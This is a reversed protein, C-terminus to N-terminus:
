EKDSTVSPNDLWSSLAYKTNIAMSSTPNNQGLPLSADQSDVITNDIVTNETDDANDVM